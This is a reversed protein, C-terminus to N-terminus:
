RIFNVGLMGGLTCSIIFTLMKVFYALNFPQKNFLHLILSLLIIILSSSVGAFWGHKKEILSSIIGYILFLGLGTIYTITRITDINTNLIQFYILITYILIIILFIISIYLLEKIKNKLFNM